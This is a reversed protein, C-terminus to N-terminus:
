FLPNPYTEDLHCTFLYESFAPPSAMHTYFSGGPLPNLSHLSGSASGHRRHELLLSSALTAPASPVCPSLSSILGLLYCPVRGHPAGMMLPGM